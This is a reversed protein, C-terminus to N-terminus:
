NGALEPAVETPPPPAAEGPIPWPLDPHRELDHPDQGPHKRAVHQAFFGEVICQGCGMCRVRRAKRRGTPTLDSEAIAPPAPLLRAPTLQARQGRLDALRAEAAAIEGDIAAAQAEPTAPWDALTCHYRLRGDDHVAFVGDLHAFTVPGFQALPIFAPLKQATV